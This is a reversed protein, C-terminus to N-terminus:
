MVVRAGDTPAIVHAGWPSVESRWVREVESLAGLREELVKADSSRCLVHPNPGADLTCWAQLGEDRWRAVQRWVKWTSDRTYIVPPRSTLMVAHMDLADEEVLAGLTELAGEELAAAMEAVLEASRERFVRFYPSTSARLHGDSSSVAKRKADVLCSLVTLELPTEVNQLSLPGERSTLTVVGGRLSRVASLSGARACWAILEREELHEALGAADLAALTLAAGGSASSALGGSMPVASESQVRASHGLLGATTRVSHLLQYAQAAKQGDHPTLLRGNISIEDVRLGADWEVTTTAGHELTLSLSQRAPLGMNREDYGWHKVLAINVPAWATSRRVTM